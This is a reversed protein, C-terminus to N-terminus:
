KLGYDEALTGKDDASKDAYDRPPAISAAMSDDLAGRQASGSYAPRELSTFANAPNASTHRRSDSCLTQAGHTLHEHLERYSQTLANTLQASTSFHQTVSEQYHDYKAQLSKLHSELEQVRSDSSGQRSVMFGVGGGILFFLIYLLWGM